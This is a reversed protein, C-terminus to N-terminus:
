DTDDGDYEEDALEYNDTADGYLTQDPCCIPCRDKHSTFAYRMGCADCTTTANTMYSCGGGM